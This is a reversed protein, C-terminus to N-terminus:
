VIKRCAADPALARWEAVYRSYGQPSGKYLDQWLGPVSEAEGDVLRMADQIKPGHFHVIRADENVGWYPKWNYKPSLHDWKGHYFDRLFEQDYGRSMDTTDCCFDILAPLDDRLREVNMIIVGSNLEFSRHGDPNFESSALFLSPRFRDIQPDRLFIVDCDTYLVFRDHEEVLPVEFRLFAGRAIAMFHELHPFRRGQAQELQDYFSIRRKHIVVGAARLERTFDSEEGDYLMNPQLTSNKLASAVAVRIMDGYGGGEAKGVSEETIAFYWKM